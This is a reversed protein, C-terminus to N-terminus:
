GALAITRVSSDAGPKWRKIVRGNLKTAALRKHAKNRVTTFSGGVYVRKKGAAIALVEGNTNARYRTAAGTKASVAGLNHRTAGSLTDFDGGVYVTRGNRSLALATVEGDTGPNWARLAGTDARFAALNSRAVGPTGPAAGAPRVSTFDGAIYVTNRVTVISNVQGNTQYGPDVEQSLAQASPVPGVLVLGAFSLLVPAWLRLRTRRVHMVEGPKGVTVTEGSFSEPCRAM